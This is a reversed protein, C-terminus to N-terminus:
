SRWRGRVLCFEDFRMEPEARLKKPHKFHRNFDSLTHMSASPLAWSLASWATTSHPSLTRNIGTLFGDFRLLLPKVNRIVNYYTNRTFFWVHKPTYVRWLQCYFLSPTPTPSLPLFSKSRQLRSSWTSQAVTCTQGQKTLATKAHTRRPSRDNFCWLRSTVSLQPKTSSQHPGEVFIHLFDYSFTLNNDFHCQNGINFDPKYTNDLGSKAVAAPFCEYVLIM